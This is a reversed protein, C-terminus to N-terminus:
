KERHKERKEKEKRWVLKMRREKQKKKKGKEGHKRTYVLLWGGRWKRHCRSHSFLQECGHFHFSFMRSDRFTTLQPFSLIGPKGVKKQALAVVLLSLSLGLFFPSLFFTQLAYDKIRPMRSCFKPAGAKKIKRVRNKRKKREKKQKKETM